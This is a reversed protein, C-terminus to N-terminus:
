SRYEANIRVYDYSFDTTWVTANAEGRHLVVRITIEPRAMVAQGQAETYAAARGGQEVICIEDLYVAVREPQLEALGARGLAAVIRGWNPDGAFLAIKVLPSEAIAYAAQRCEQRNRGQEVQVTVFKTAGEGDRILLQALETCLEGLVDSFRARAQGTEVTCGARGTALLVCADNTSTDGDVTIANFSDAVAEQLLVQLAEGDVAADTALFALMTAMDPKIMGVGKAIGTLTVTHGNLDFQRSRCKPYTDTTMIARAATEWADERLGAFLGPLAAAVRDVPLPEGIVGTSFPIVEAPDCQGAGAVRACCDRATQIGAAGTGANANGANILLYRPNMRQLHERAVTVPAACFANRTFVAACHSGPAVELLTLDDRDQYRIGAAMTALRVGPVPPITDSM